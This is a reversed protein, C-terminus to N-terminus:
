TTSSPWSRPPASSCRRTSGTRPMCLWGLPPAQCRLSDTRSCTTPANPRAALSPSRTRSRAESPEPSVPSSYPLSCGARSSGGPTVLPERASLFCCDPCPPESTRIHPDSSRSVEISLRPPGQDRRRFWRSGHAARSAQISHKMPPIGLAGHHGRQYGPGPRTAATRQDQPPGGPHALGSEELLDDALRRPHPHQAHLADLRLRREGEGSQM